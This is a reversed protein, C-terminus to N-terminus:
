NLPRSFMEATAGARSGPIEKKRLHNLIQMRGEEVLILQKVRLAGQSPVLLHQQWLM